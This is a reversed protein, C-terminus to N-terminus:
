SLRRCPLGVPPRTHSRPSLWRGITIIPIATSSTKCGAVDRRPFGLLSGRPTESRSEIVIVCCVPIRRSSSASGFGETGIDMSVSEGFLKIYLAFSNKLTELSTMMLARSLM